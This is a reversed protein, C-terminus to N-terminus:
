VEIPISFDELSDLMNECDEVHNAALEEQNIARMDLALLFRTEIHHLKDIRFLIDMNMM